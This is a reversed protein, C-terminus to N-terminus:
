ENCSNKSQESFVKKMAQITTKDQNIIDSWYARISEITDEQTVNKTIPIGFSFTGTVGQNVKSNFWRVPIKEGNSSIIDNIHECFTDSNEVIDNHIFKLVIEEKKDVFELWNKGILEDENEFGLLQALYFNGLLINMDTDLVVVIFNLYNFINWLSDALKKTENVHKM